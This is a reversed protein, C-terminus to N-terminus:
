EGMGRLVDDAQRQLEAAPSISIKTNMAEELLPNLTFAYASLREGTAVDVALVEDTFQFDFGANYLQEVYAEMATFAMDAMIYRTELLVPKELKGERVISIQFTTPRLDTNM